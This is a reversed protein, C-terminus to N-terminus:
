VVYMPASYFGTNMMCKTLTSSPEEGTDERPTIDLLTALETDLGTLYLVIKSTRRPL